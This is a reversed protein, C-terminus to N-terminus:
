LKQQFDKIGADLNSSLDVIWTEGEHLIPDFYERIESITTSVTIKDVLKRLNEIFEEEGPYNSEVIQLYKQTSILIEANLLKGDAINDNYLGVVTNHAGFVAMYNIASSLLDKYESGMEGIRKYDPNVIDALFVPNLEVPAGTQEGNIVANIQGTTASRYDNLAVKSMGFIVTVGIGALIAITLLISGAVKLKHFKKEM